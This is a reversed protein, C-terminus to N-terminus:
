YRTNLIYYSTGLLCFPSVDSDKGHTHDMQRLECMIRLKTMLVDNAEEHTTCQESKVKNMLDSYDAMPLHQIHNQVCNYASESDKIASLDECLRHYQQMPCSECSQMEINRKHVATFANRLTDMVENIVYDSACQYCDYSL